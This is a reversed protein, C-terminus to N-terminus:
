RGAFRARKLRRQLCAIEVSKVYSECASVRLEGYVARLQATLSRGWAFLMRNEANQLQQQKRWLGDLDKTRKWTRAVSKKHQEFLADSRESATEEKAAARRLALYERKAEKVASKAGAVQKRGPSMPAARGPSPKSPPSRPPPPPMSQDADKEADELVIPREVKNKSIKPMGVRGKKIRGM